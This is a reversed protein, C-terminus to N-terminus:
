PTLWDMSGCKIKEIGGTVADKASRLIGACSHLSLFYRLLSSIACCTWHVFATNETAIM